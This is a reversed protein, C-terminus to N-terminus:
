SGYNLRARDTPLRHSLLDSMASVAHPFTMKLARNQSPDGDSIPYRGSSTRTARLFPGGRATASPRFLALPSFRERPLASRRPRHRPLRPRHLLPSTADACSRLRPSRSTNRFFGALSCGCGGFIRIDFSRSDSIRLDDQRATRFLNRNSLVLTKSTRL